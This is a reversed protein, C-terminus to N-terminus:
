CISIKKQWLNMIGAIAYKQNLISFTSLTSSTLSNHSNQTLLIMSVSQGQTLPFLLLAIHNAHIICISKM